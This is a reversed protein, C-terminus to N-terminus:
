EHSTKKFLVELKKLFEVETVIILDDERVPTNLMGEILATWNVWGFESMLDKLRYPNYFREFERNNKRSETIGPPSALSRGPADGPPPDPSTRVPRLITPYPHFLIARTSWILCRADPWTRLRVRHRQELSIHSIIRQLATHTTVGPM